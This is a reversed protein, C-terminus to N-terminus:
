TRINQSIRPQFTEFHKNCLKWVNSGLNENAVATGHCELVHIGLYETYEM